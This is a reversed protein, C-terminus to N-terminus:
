QYTLINHITVNKKKHHQEMIPTPIYYFEILSQVLVYM